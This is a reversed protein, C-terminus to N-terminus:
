NHGDLALQPIVPRRVVGSSGGPLCRSSGLAPSERIDNVDRKYTVGLVLVSAGRLAPSSREATPVLNVVHEPMARNIQDALAIFRAEYGDSAGEVVSVASGCSHLSGRDGARTSPMFGFPKTAAARHGGLTWVLRGARLHWNTALAINVSRFHTELLKATEAVRPSSM